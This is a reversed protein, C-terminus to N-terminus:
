INSKTEQEILLRSFRESWNVKGVVYKRQLAHNDLVKKIIEATKKPTQKTTDIEVLNKRGRVDAAEITVADLIEAQLNESIKKEPWKRKKMRKELVDPRCRLIVVINADAFHSLHGDVINIKGKKVSKKVASKVDVISVIRTKRKKDIVSSLKGEKLLSTLSILNADLDKALIKAVVTKGTGPTGTIAIIM